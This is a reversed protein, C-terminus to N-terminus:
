SVDADERSLGGSEISAISSFGSMISATISTYASAIGKSAELRLEATSLLSQLNAKAQELRIETNQFDLARGKILTEIGLELQAADKQVEARFKDVDHGYMIAEQSLETSAIGVQAKYREINGLFSRLELDQQSVGANLKAIEADTIVKLTGIRATEAKLEAEYVRIKGLEGDIQAKYLEFEVAQSQVRARHDNINERYLDIKMGEIGLATSVAGQEATFLKLFSNYRELDLNYEAMLDKDLGSKAQIELLETRYAELRLKEAELRSSQEVSQAKYRELQINYDAISLNHYAIGFEIVAKQAELARNNVQNAHNLELQELSLGSTIAFHTNTQALEAQKILIDRSREIRQDRDDVVLDQQLETLVGNPLSFNKGSWLSNVKDRADEYDRNDRDRTREWIADEVAPALGTGGNEVDSLLKAGLADKLASSYEPEVYAFQTTPVTLNYSPIADGFDAIVISPPAPISYDGISTLKDPVSESPAVANDPPSIVPKEASVEETFAPADPLSVTPKTIEKEDITPFNTVIPTTSYESPPPDGIRAKIADIATTPRAPSNASIGPVFISINGPTVLGISPAGAVAIDRLSALFSQTNQVADNARDNATATQSTVASNVQTLSPNVAM